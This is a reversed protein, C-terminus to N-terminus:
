FRLEAAVWLTRGVSPVDIGNFGIAVPRSGLADDLTLRLDLRADDALDFPGVTAALRVLHYTPLTYGPFRLDTTGQARLNSQSPVRSSVFRWGAYFGTMISPFRLRGFATVMAQPYAANDPVDKQLVGGQFSEGTRTDQLSTSAGFGYSPGEESTKAYRIMLEGGVTQADFHTARLQGGRALYALADTTDNYFFTGALRLHRSPFWDAVLSVGNLYQARLEPDGQVDLNSLPNNYLQEPSPAKFSRGGMLKLSMQETPRFVVAARGSFAHQIVSHYDYRAAAALSVSSSVPYLFQAYAAVTYISRADPTMGDITRDGLREDIRQPQDITYRGDVGWLMLGRGAFERLIEISGGWETTLFSRLHVLGDNPDPDYVDASGNSASAYGARARFYWGRSFPRDWTVALNANRLDLRTGHSLVSIDYFEATRDAEQLLGQVALRGGLARMEGRVLGGRPFAIDQESRRGAYSSSFPGDPVALGSRNEWQGVVGGLLFWSSGTAWLSGDLGVSRQGGVSGRARAEGGVQVRGEYAPRRTVVNIAGVLAGAGYLASAPGLMVEIREVTSIPIFEPGLLYTEAQVFAVHRGNILIRFLRSGSRSGGFLGRAGAHYNILDYSVFVGPVWALAEGVSTYGAAEIDERTVVYVNAPTQQVPYTFKTSVSVFEQLAEDPEFEEELDEEDGYDDQVYDAEAGDSGSSVPSSAPPPVADISGSGDPGGPSAPVDPSGDDYPNGWGSTGPDEAPGQALATPVLLLAGVFAPFLHRTM